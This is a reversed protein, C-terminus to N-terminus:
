KQVIKKHFHQYDRKWQMQQKQSLRSPALGLENKLKKGFDKTVTLAGNYNLHNGGDKSHLSWDFGDPYIQNYDYYKIHYRAALTQIAASKANNWTNASPVTILILQINNQVCLNYIQDFSDRNSASIRVPRGPINNMYDVRAPYPKVRNSYAMGKNSFRYCRRSLDTFSAITLQRWNAHYKILPFNFNIASILASDANDLDAKRRRFWSRVKGVRKGGSQDATFQPNRSSFMCDTELVLFKPHQYNLVDKVDKRIERLTNKPRGAVASTIGTDHYLDVPSLARYIDSNGVFIVDLSNKDEGRYAKTIRKEMGDESTNRDPTFVRSLFVFLLAFLLIFIAARTINRISQNFQKM